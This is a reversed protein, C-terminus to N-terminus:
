RVQGRCVLWEQNQAHRLDITFVKLVSLTLWKDSLLGSPHSEQAQFALRKVFSWRLPQGYHSTREACFFGQGWPCGSTAALVEGRSTIAQFLRTSQSHYSKRACEKNFLKAATSKLSLSFGFRKTKRECFMLSMSDHHSFIDTRNCRNM